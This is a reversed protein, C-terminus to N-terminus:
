QPRHELTIALDAAFVGQAGGFGIEVAKARRNAVELDFTWGGGGSQEEWVAMWGAMGLGLPAAFGDSNSIYTETDAYFRDLFLTARGACADFDEIKVAVTFDPAEM